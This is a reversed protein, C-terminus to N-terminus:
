GRLKEGTKRVKKSRDQNKTELFMNHFFLCAAAQRKTAAPRGSGSTAPTESSGETEKRWGGVRRVETAASGEESAARLVGIRRVAAWDFLARRFGAPATRETIPLAYRFPPEPIYLM